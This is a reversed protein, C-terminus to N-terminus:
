ARPAFLLKLYQRLLLLQGVIMHPEGLARSMVLGGEVVTNMMDALATLDVTERPPYALATEDLMARLRLRWALVAERNARSVDADFLRDQYAAAAVICGPYGNPMDAFMDAYLRVLILLRQLPDDSLDAARAMLDTMLQDEFAAHRQVLAVALANKDPFHYFFGARSIEVAAAIEEVSTADFGKTVVADHAYALIRARTDGRPRRDLATEPAVQSMTPNNRTLGASSQRWITCAMSKALAPIRGGSYWFDDPLFVPLEAILGADLAFHYLLHKRHL